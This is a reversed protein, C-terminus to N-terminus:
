KYEEIEHEKIEFYNEPYELTKDINPVFLNEKVGLEKNIDELRTNLGM